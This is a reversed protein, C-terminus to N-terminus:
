SSVKTRSSSSILRWNTSFLSLTSFTACGVNVDGNDVGEAAFLALGDFGRGVGVFTPMQAHQEVAKGDVCSDISVFTVVAPYM